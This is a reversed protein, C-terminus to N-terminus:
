FEIKKKRGLDGARVKNEAGLVCQMTRTLFFNCSYAPKQNNLLCHGCLAYWHVQWQPKSLFKHSSTKPNSEALLPFCGWSSECIYFLALTPPLGSFFGRSRLNKGKVLRNLLIIFPPRALKNPSSAKLLVRVFKQWRRISKFFFYPNIFHFFTSSFEPLIRKLSYNKQPASMKPITADNM